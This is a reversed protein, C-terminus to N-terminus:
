DKGNQFANIFIINLESKAVLYSNIIMSKIAAANSVGHGIIVNKRIGLIPTGGYQEFNFKEIYDDILKRKKLMFYFGESYKLLINGVFGDCVIVDPCKESFIDYGEINGVFNFDKSEKMLNYTAKSLLNGKKDEAGINLLAVRPNSIKKINQVFLSGMHGYQYLVEPKCEPNIGVDLLACEDGNEKPIFATICPRTIGSIVGIESIAGVLMAGSNGASAFANITDNALYNFGKVISSDRKTSYGKTPDDGMEIVQSTHILHYSDKNIGENKLLPEIVDKDGFLYLEVTEPLESLALKVGQVTATPAYDGGMLDIGIKM